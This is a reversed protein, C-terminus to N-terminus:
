RFPDCGWGLSGSLARPWAAAPLPLKPDTVLALGDFTITAALGDMSRSGVSALGTWSPAAGDAVDAGDIFLELRVGTESEITAFARLTGNGLQGLDLATVEGIADGDSVSRCTAPGDATPVFGDSPTTIVANTTGASERIVPERYTGGTAAATGYGLLGGVVLGAVAVKTARGSSGRPARFIREAVAAAIGFVLMAGAAIAFVIGGFAATMGGVSQNWAHNRGLAIGGVLSGLVIVVLAIRGSGSTPVLRAMMGM